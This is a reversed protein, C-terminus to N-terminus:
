TNGLDASSFYESLDSVKNTSCLSSIANYDTSVLDMYSLEDVSNVTKLEINIGRTQGETSNFEDVMSELSTDELTGLTITTPNDKDLGYNKDQSGQNCGTLLIGSLIIVAIKKLNMIFIVELFREIFVLQNINYGSKM